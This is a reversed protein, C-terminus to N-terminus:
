PGECIVDVDAPRPGDQRGRQNLGLHMWIFPRDDSDGPERFQKMDDEAEERAWGRTATSTERTPRPTPSKRRRTGPLCLREPRISM